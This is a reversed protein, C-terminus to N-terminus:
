QGLQSQGREIGRQDDLKRQLEAIQEEESQTFVGPQQQPYKPKFSSVKKRVPIDQEQQTGFLKHDSVTPPTPTVHSSGHTPHGFLRIPRGAVLDEKIDTPIDAVVDRFEQNLRRQERKCEGCDKAKTPEHGLEVQCYQQQKLALLGQKVVFPWATYDLDNLWDALDQDKGEDLELTLKLM